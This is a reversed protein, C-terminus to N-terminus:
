AAEAMHEKGTIRWAIEDLADALDEARMHNGDAGIICPGQPGDLSIMAFYEDPHGPVFVLVVEGQDDEIEGVWAHFGWPARPAIWAALTAHDAPSVVFPTSPTLAPSNM